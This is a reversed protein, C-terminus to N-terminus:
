STEYLWRDLDAPTCPKKKGGNWGHFADHDKVCMTLGWELALRYEPYHAYSFMHHVQLDETAGCIQCTYSDRHLVDQIYERYEQYNRRILREEMSLNHDWLPSNERSMNESQWSALCSKSCFRSRSVTTRVVDYKNGCWECELTAKGGKWVPSKEGKRNSVVERQYCGCSTAEGRQLANSSVLSYNGCECQCQWIAKEIGSGISETDLRIVTYRGFKLGTLDIINVCRHCVTHKNYIRYFPRDFCYGCSPCMCRVSVNSGSPLDDIHVWFKDRFGTYKYGLEQYYQISPGIWTMEVWEDLIIIENCTEGITPIRM